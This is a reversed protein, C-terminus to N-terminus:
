SKLEKAAKASLLICVHNFKMWEDLEEKQRKDTEGEGNLDLLYDLREQYENPLNYSLVGHSTPNQSLFEVIDAKAESPSPYKFNMMGFEIIMPLWVGAAGIRVALKDPLNVTVETM